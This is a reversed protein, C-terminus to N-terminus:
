RVLHERVAAIQRIDRAVMEDLKARAGQMAATSALGGNLAQGTGFIRTHPRSGDSEWLEAIRRTTRFGERELSLFFLLNMRRFAAEPVGNSGCVQDHAQEFTDAHLNTALMHGARPLDFYARLEEGWLYAYYPGSGIEHCIFCARPIPTSAGREIVAISDAAILEVDAPVFNLLAGMVTTKGAGGPLAGVMFSCGGSISALAYAALDRAITGDALLDVVSLMRGGRQNCREIERVHRKLAATDPM